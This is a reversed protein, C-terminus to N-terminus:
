LGRLDNPSAVFIYTCFRFMLQVFIIGLGIGGVLFMILEVFEGFNESCGTMHLNAYPFINQNKGCDRSVNLCCSDPANNTESFLRQMQQVVEMNQLATELTWDAPYDDPTNEAGLALLQMLHLLEVNKSETEVTWGSLSNVPANKAELAMLHVFQLLVLHMAETELDGDAFSNNPSNKVELALVKILRLLEYPLASTGLVWDAPSDVGCCIFQEQIGDWALTTREKGAEEYEAINKNMADDVIDYAKGKYIFVSIFAVFEVIIIIDMLTVFTDLIFKYNTFAAGFGLSSIITVIVGVSILMYSSVRLNENGVLESAGLFDFYDNLKFTMRAMYGGLATIAIGTLLFTFFFIGSRVRM